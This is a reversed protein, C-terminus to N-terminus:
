RIFTTSPSTGLTEKQRGKKRSISNILFYMHIFSMHFSVLGSPPPIHVRIKQTWQDNSYTAELKNKGM